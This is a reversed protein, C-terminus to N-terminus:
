LKESISTVEREDSVGMARFASVMMQMMAAAQSLFYTAHGGQGM